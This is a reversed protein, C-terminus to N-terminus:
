RVQYITGKANGTDSSKLIQLKENEILKEHSSQEIYIISGKKSATQITKELFDSYYDRSYPPDFFILSFRESKLRRIFTEANTRILISKDSIDLNSINDKLTQFLQPNQEVFTCSKAGNSIAEIGLSGSGSFLDLCNAEKVEQALWAFLIERLKEPTPKLNTNTLTKIRRSGLSGSIIRLSKSM